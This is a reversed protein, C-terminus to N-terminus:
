ISGLERRVVDIERIADELQPMVDAGGRLQSVLAGRISELRLLEMRLRFERVMTEPFVCNAAFLVADRFLQSVPLQDRMTFDIKGRTAADRIWVWSKSGEQTRLYKEGNRALFKDRITQDLLLAAIIFIDVGHAGYGHQQRAKSPASMISARVDLSSMGLLKALGDVFVGDLHTKSLIAFMKGAERLVDAREGVTIRNLLFGVSGITNLGPCVGGNERILDAPDKGPQSIGVRCELGCQAMLLVSKEAAALGAQDADFFLIAMNTRAKLLKIHDVTLATGMPAVAVLGSQWMLIVDFYGEVVYIRDVRSKVRDLGFLLSGKKFDDSERSNIYKPIDKEVSLTRGGFGVVRGRANRIPIILRGRFFPYSGGQSSVSMLGAEILEKPVFQTKMAKEFWDHTDRAYGIRFEKAIDDRVGRDTVYNQTVRSNAYGTEFVAAAAEMIDLNSTSNRQHNGDYEPQLGARQAVHEVAEGFSLGDREQIFQIADGHAACGYCHYHDPFVHFSGTKEAHFPCLGKMSAGNRKLEVYEGVMDPLHIAERLRNLWERKFGM